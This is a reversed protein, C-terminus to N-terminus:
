ILTEGTYLTTEELLVNSPSYVKIILRMRYTGPALYVPEAVSAVGYGTDTWKYSTNYWDGNYSQVTANLEVKNDPDLLIVDGGVTHRGSSDTNEMVGGAVRTIYNWKPLPLVDQWESDAFANMSFSNLLLFFSVLIILTSSFNFTRRM